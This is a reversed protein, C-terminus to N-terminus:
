RPLIQNDYIYNAIEHGIFDVGMFSPHIYDTPNIYKLDGDGAADLSKNYIDIIPINHSKAYIIHNKIYAMREEAQKIRDAVPINLVIKKAYTEKNPAITAVFVVASKPHTTILTKMLEDLAENQRKIGDEIGFSSLPNYGFSEVLILDFNRPLLPEFTSDWYTTKITLEDNVSLINTSGVAYNDILIGIGDKQYLGNIFQSFTGGHPGLAHTMSDGIMFITYTNKKGIKPPTYTRFVFPSPTPSSISQRSNLSLSTYHKILYYTTGLVLLLGVIVIIAAFGKKENFFNSVSMM